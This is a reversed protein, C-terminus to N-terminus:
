RQFFISNTKSIKCCSSEIWFASPSCNMNRYYWVLSKQMWALRVVFCFFGPSSSWNYNFIINDLEANMQFSQPCFSEYFCCYCRKMNLSIWSMSIKNELGFRLISHTLLKSCTAMRISTKRNWFITASEPNSISGSFSIEIMTVPFSFMMNWSLFCTPITPGRPLLTRFITVIFHLLARFFAFFTSGWLNESLGLYGGLFFKALVGLVGGRSKGEWFKDKVGRSEELYKQSPEQLFILGWMPFFFNVYM